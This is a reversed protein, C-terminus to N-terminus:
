RDCHPQVQLLTLNDQLSVFTRFIELTTCSQNCVWGALNASKRSVNPLVPRECNEEQKPTGSPTTMSLRSLFQQCHQLCESHESIDDEDNASLNELCSAIGADGSRPSARDTLVLRATDSGSVTDM